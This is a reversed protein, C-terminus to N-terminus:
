ESEGDDVSTICVTPVVTQDIVFFWHNLYPVGCLCACCLHHAPVVDAGQKAKILEACTVAPLTAQTKITAYWDPCDVSIVQGMNVLPQQLDCICKADLWFLFHVSMFVILLVTSYEGDNLLLADHRAVAIM